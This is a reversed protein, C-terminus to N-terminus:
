EHYDEKVKQEALEEDEPEITIDAVDTEQIEAARPDVEDAETPTDTM